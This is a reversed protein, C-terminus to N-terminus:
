CDFEDGGVADYGISDCDFNRIRYSGGIMHLNTGKFGNDFLVNFHVSYTDVEWACSM